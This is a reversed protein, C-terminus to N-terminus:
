FSNKLWINVTFTLLLNTVMKHKIHNLQKTLLITNMVVIIYIQTYVHQKTWM